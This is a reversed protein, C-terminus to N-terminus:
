RHGMPVAPDGGPDHDVGEYEAHAYQDRDLDATIPLVMSEALLGAGM